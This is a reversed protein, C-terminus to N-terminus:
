GDRLAAAALVLNSAAQIALQAAKEMGGADRMREAFAELERSRKMLMNAFQNRSTYRPAEASM